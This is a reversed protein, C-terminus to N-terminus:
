KGGLGVALAEGVILGDCHDRIQKHGAVIGGATLYGAANQHGQLVAVFKGPYVCVLSPQCTRDCIQM